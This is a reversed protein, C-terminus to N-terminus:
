CQRDVRRPGISIIAAEPKLLVRVMSTVAKAKAKLRDLVCPISYAADRVKFAHQLLPPDSHATHPYSWPEDHWQLNTM